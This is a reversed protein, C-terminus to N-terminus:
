GSAKREGQESLSFGCFPCFKSLRNPLTKGCNPCFIFKAPTGDATGVQAESAQVAEDGAPRKTPSPSRAGSARRQRRFLARVIGVLAVIIAIASILLVWFEVSGPPPFMSQWWSSQSGSGGSFVSTGTLTYNVSGVPGQSSGSYIPIVASLLLGSRQDWYYEGMSESKLHLATRDFGNLYWGSTDNIVADPLSYQSTTFLRDHPSLGSSVLFAGFGGNSTYGTDVDVTFQGYSLTTGNNFKFDVGITASSGSISAITGRVSVVNAFDPFGEPLESGGTDVQVSYEAWAGVGIAVGRGAQTTTGSGFVPQLEHDANFPVSYPNAGGVSKGDLLWYSFQQSSDPNATVMLSTGSAQTYNGTPPNTTGGVGSKLNLTYTAATQPTSYRADLVTLSLDGTYDLSAQGGFSPQSPMEGGFPIDQSHIPDSTALQGHALIYALIGSADQPLDSGQGGITAYLTVGYADLAPPLVLLSVVEPPLSPAQSDTITMTSNILDPLNSPVFIFFAQSGNVAGFVFGTSTWTPTGSPPDLSVQLNGSAHPTLSWSGSSSFTADGVGGLIESGNVIMGVVTLNTFSATFNAKRTETFSIDQSGGYRAEANLNTSVNLSGSYTISVLTPGSDARLAASYSSSVITAVMLVILTSALLKTSTRSAPNETPKM